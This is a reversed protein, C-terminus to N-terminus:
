ACGIQQFTEEIQLGKTNKTAAKGHDGPVYVGDSKGMSYYFEDGSDTFVPTIGDFTPYDSLQSEIRNAANKSSKYM